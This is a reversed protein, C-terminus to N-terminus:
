LPYFIGKIHSTCYSRQLNGGFFYAQCVVFVENLNLVFLPTRLTLRPMQSRAEVNIIAPPIAKMCVAMVANPHFDLFGRFATYASEFAPRVSLFGLSKQRLLTFAIPRWHLATGVRKFGTLLNTCYKTLSTRLTFLAVGIFVALQCLSAVLPEAAIVFAPPEIHEATVVKGTLLTTICRASVQVGVVFFWKCVKGFQPELNTIADGKTFWAMFCVMCGILWLNATHHTWEIKSYQAM